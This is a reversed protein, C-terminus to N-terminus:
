LVTSLMTTPLYTPSLARAATPLALGMSFRSRTSNTPIEMPALIMTDWYKPELSLSFRDRVMPLVMVRVAAAERNRMTNPDMIIRGTSRMSFVGSVMM